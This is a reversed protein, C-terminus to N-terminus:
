TSMFLAKHFWIHIFCTNWVVVFHKQWNWCLWLFRFSLRSPVRTGTNNAASSSNGFISTGLSGWCVDFTFMSPVSFDFCSYSNSIVLKKSGQYIKTKNNQYYDAKLQNHRTYVICYITVRSFLELLKVSSSFHQQM